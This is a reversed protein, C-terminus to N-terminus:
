FSFRLSAGFTIANTSADELEDFAGARYNGNVDIGLGPVLKKEFGLRAAYFPDSFDDMLGSSSTIGIGVGGYLGSGVLVYAMPSYSSESSGGFGDKDYELDFEFRFLGAPVYQYSAVWAQGEDKIDGFRDDALSDLTKWYHVGIGLRHEAASLESAFVLVGLFTAVCSVRVLRQNLKTM